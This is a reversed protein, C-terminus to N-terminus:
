KILTAQMFLRATEIVPETPSRFAALVLFSRSELKALGHITVEGFIPTIFRWVLFVSVFYTGMFCKFFVLTIYM